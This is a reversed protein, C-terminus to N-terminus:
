RHTKVALHADVFSFNYRVYWDLTRRLRAKNPIWLNPLAMIPLLAGAIAARSMRYYSQLVYVTESVVLEDTTAILEGTEIRGLFASARPSHDAHDQRIHRVFNNTDVIPLVEAM